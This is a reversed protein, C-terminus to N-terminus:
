LVLARFGFGWVGSAKFGLQGLNFGSLRVHLVM